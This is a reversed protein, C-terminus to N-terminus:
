LGIGKKERKIRLDIEPIIGICNTNSRPATNTVAWYLFFTHYCGSPNDSLLLNDICISASFGEHAPKLSLTETESCGSVMCAKFGRFENLPRWPVEFTSCVNSVVM